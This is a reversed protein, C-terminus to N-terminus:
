HGYPIKEGAKIEVKLTNEDPPIPCSYRYSYACYPNYALNFDILAIASEPIKFDLFRGGGYTENRTTKDKYPIFLYNKFGKRDRKLLDINQYATLRCPVSDIIFDVYGYRRYIPLRNTSTPMEFKKGKDKTFTAKLQFTSDFNFYNLGQFENIEEISLMHNSTDLLETKHEERHELIETESQQSVALFPILLFILPIRKMSNLPLFDMKM